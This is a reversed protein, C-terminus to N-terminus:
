DSMGGGVSVATGHVYSGADSALFAIMSAVEDPVSARGITIRSFYDGVLKMMPNGPDLMKVLRPSMMAGPCVAVTSLGLPGIESALNRTFGIVASKCSSYVASGPLGIKGGESSVNIIRGRGAPIMYKLAEYTVIFVGMLNVRVILEVEDWEMQAFHSTPRSIRKGSPGFAGSGGANNVVLDIGGFREVVGALGRSVQDTDGVDAVVAVTEVNWRSAVEAAAAAAVDAHLDMVAVSAGQEALRHCIANGSGDGGGGTVVARKGDLRLLDNTTQRVRGWPVRELGFLEIAADSVEGVGELYRTSSGDTLGGDTQNNM